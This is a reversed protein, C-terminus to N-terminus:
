DLLAPEEKPATPVTPQQQPIKKPEEVLTGFKFRSGYKKQLKEKEHNYLILFYNTQDDELEVKKIESKGPTSIEEKLVFGKGDETFFIQEEIMGRGIFSHYNLRVIVNNVIKPEKGYIYSDILFSKQETSESLAKFLPFLSTVETSEPAKIARIYHFIQGPLSSVIKNYSKPLLITQDLYPNNIVIAIDSIATPPAFPTPLGRAFESSVSIFGALPLPKFTTSHPWRMQLLNNLEERSSQVLAQRFNHLDDFTEVIKQSEQPCFAIKRLMVFFNALKDLRNKFAQESTTSPKIIFEYLTNHYGYTVASGLAAIIIPFNYIDPKGKTLYTDILSSKSGGFCTSYTFMNTHITNLFQLVERFQERPLSAIVNKVCSETGHGIMVINWAYQPQILLQLAERLTTTGYTEGFLKNKAALLAQGWAYGAIYGFPNNIKKLTPNDLNFGSNKDTINFREKYAQPIILVFSDQINYFDFKLQYAQKQLSVTAGFNLEHLFRQWISIQALIPTSGAFINVLLDNSSAHSLIKTDEFNPDNLILLDRQNEVPAPCKPSEVSCNVFGTIFFCILLIIKKM